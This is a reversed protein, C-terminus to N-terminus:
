RNTQRHPAGASSDRLPRDIRDVYKRGAVVLLAAIHAGVHLQFYYLMGLLSAYVDAILLALFVISLWIMWQERFRSALWAFAACALLDTIINLQIPTQGTEFFVLSGVWFPVQSIFACLLAVWQGRHAWVAALALFIITMVM